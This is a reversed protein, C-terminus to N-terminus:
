KENEKIIRNKRDLNYKVIEQVLTSEYDWSMPNYTRPKDVNDLADKVDNLLAEDNWEIATSGDGYTYVTCHSGNVTETAWWCKSYDSM